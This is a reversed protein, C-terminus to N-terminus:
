RACKPRGAHIPDGSGSPAVVFYHERGNCGTSTLAPSGISSGGFTCEGAFERAAVCTTMRQAFSNIDGAHALEISWTPPAVDLRRTRTARLHRGHQLYPAIAVRKREHWSKPDLTAAATVVLSSPCRPIDRQQPADGTVDSRLPPRCPRRAVYGASPRLTVTTPPTARLCSQFSPDSVRSDLFVLFCGDGFKLFCGDGFKETIWAYPM